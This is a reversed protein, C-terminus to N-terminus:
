EIGNKVKYEFDILRKTDETISESIRAIQDADLYKRDEDFMSKGAFRGENDPDSGLFYASTEDTDLHPFNVINIIEDERNKYTKLLNGKKLM